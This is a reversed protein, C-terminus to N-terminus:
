SRLDGPRRSRRYHKVHNVVTVVVAGAVLGVRGIATLYPFVERFTDIQALTPTWDLSEYGTSNAIPGLVMMLAPSTHVNHRCELCECPVVAGRPGGITVTGDCDAHSHDYRCAMSIHRPVERAMGTEGTEGTGGKAPPQEM